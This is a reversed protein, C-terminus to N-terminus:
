DRYIRGTLCYTGVTNAGNMGYFAEFETYAPIIFQVVPTGLGTPSDDFNSTWVTAGNMTVKLLRKDGGVQEDAYDLAAVMYFNGTTFKLLSLDAANNGTSTGSNYGYAHEGIIELTAATGTFTNGSGIPPGGGIPAM